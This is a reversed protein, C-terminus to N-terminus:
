NRAYAFSTFAADAYGDFVFTQVAQQPSGFLQLYNVDSECHEDNLGGLTLTGELKSTPKTYKAMWVSFKQEKFQKMIRLIPHDPSQETPYRTWGLGLKGDLGVPYEGGVFMVQAGGFSLRDPKLSGISFVDSFINGIYVGFGDIEAYFGPLSEGTSSANPDYTRQGITANQLQPGGVM